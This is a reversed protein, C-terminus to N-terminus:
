NGPKARGLLTPDAFLAAARVPTKFVGDRLMIDSLKQVAEINEQGLNWWEYTGCAQAIEPSVDTYKENGSIRAGETPNQVALDTADELAKLMKAAESPRSELFTKSYVTACTPFPNVIYKARPSDSISRGLDKQIAITAFPDITFLADFRGSTFSPLQLNSEVQVIQVAEEPKPFFHSLILLLNLRQTLGSYTGVSKGNLDEVRQISSNKPVIIRATFKQETEVGSQVVRFTDPSKSAVTLLTSYGIMIAGDIQGGILANMAQNADSFRIAEVKVGERDFLGKELAVFLAVDATIPLYGLKVTGASRSSTQKQCGCIIGLSIIVLMVTTFSRKGTKAISFAARAISIANIVFSLEKM